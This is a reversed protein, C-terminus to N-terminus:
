STALLKNTAGQPIKTYPYDEIHHSFTEAIETWEGDSDRLRVFGSGCFICFFGIQQIDSAQFSSTKLLLHKNPDTLLKGCSNCTVNDLCHSSVSQVFLHGFEMWNPHAYPEPLKGALTNSLDDAGCTEAYLGEDEAKVVMPHKREPILPAKRPVLKELVSLRLRVDVYAISLLIFCVDIFIQFTQMNGGKSSHM